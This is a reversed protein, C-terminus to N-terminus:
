FDPISKLSKRMYLVSIILEYAVGEKKACCFCSDSVIHYIRVFTLHVEGRAHGLHVVSQQEESSEASRSDAILIFM